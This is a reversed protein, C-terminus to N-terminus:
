PDTLASWLLATSPEPLDPNILFIFAASFYLLTQTIAVGMSAFIASRLVIGENRAMLYRSCQWPSIMIVCIWMLGYMCAWILNEWGTTYLHTLNNTWSIIGPNSASQALESIANLWGGAEQYLFSFGLLSASLFILFMFTDTLLVGLSGSYVTLLTFFTWVLTVSVHYDLGTLFSILTGCGQLVSLLYSGVTILLIVASLKRISPSAFHSGFFEPISVVNTRRLYKGILIAGYVYGTSQILGVIVIAIFFGQYVEGVDGMFAGTGIFSAILSGSILLSPANRKAVYYDSLTKVKRGIFIGAFLFIAFISLVGVIYPNM